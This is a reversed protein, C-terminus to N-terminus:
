NGEDALLRKFQQLDAALDVALKRNYFVAAPHFTPFVRFQKTTWHYAQDAESWCRVPGSLLQGHLQGVKKTTGLLRQLGINGITMILDCPLHALEYDLLFAQQKLERQNPPRNDKKEYTQQTRKSVKTVVRYPRSHLASTIYIEQRTVGLAALSQDLEHGARGTFPKEATVETEGPAEGVLIFRPTLSGDGPVLGELQATLQQRAQQILASPLITAM